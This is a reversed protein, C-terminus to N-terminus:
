VSPFLSSSHLTITTLSPMTLLQIHEYCDTLQCRCPAAGASCGRSHHLHSGALGPAANLLYTPKKHQTLVLRTVEPLSVSFSRYLVFLNLPQNQFVLILGGLLFLCFLYVFLGGFRFGAVTFAEDKTEM